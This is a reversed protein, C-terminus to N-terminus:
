KIHNSPCPRTVSRWLLLPIFHLSLVVRPLTSVHTVTLYTYLNNFPIESIYYLFMINCLKINTHRYGSICWKIVPITPWTLQVHTKALVATM